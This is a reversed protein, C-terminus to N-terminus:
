LSFLTVLVVIFFTGLFIEEISVDIKMTYEKDGTKEAKIEM